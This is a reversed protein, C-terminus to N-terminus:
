KMSYQSVGPIKKLEEELGSGTLVGQNLYLAGLKKNGLFFLIEVKQSGSHFRFLNKMKLIHSLRVITVDLKLSLLESKKNISKIGKKQHNTLHNQQLKAYDFAKDCEEIMVDNVKTLDDLWRCSLRISEERRDIQLIAYILQNVKLLDGKEEYLQSWVPLEYTEVGDSIQLIAFKKQSRQSVRIQVTELIFAARILQNHEIQNLDALPTCSLRELIHEFADMPHGTLFFGLLEKEKKLVEMKPTPHTIEPPNTFRHSIEETMLSFFTLVGSDAEKQDTSAVEHMEEIKMRLEDRLWGTFDFAGADVLCEIAKKSVRKLDIRKFFDYFNAFPGNRDREELIVEVVGEGVGKIGSMAFRIGKETMVFAKGSENIDPSLIDINMSRLERIFKAVKSIDDRDCTMLAAMWIGPYNAKLYATIYTLFGYAAAHSKNFGYSAFKEIKDFIAAAVEEHLGNKIAGQRFKEREQEMQERDKKGMARRLVDGEGLSYNALKQAIQMVQEQYVMIGYTEELIPKLLPHDYEIKERGHKRHIFSPIMDMPGPRYLSGIAIIEEFKDPLLQRALEQMGGSEMQFVGLTKGQQLLHFTKEDDLPLNQWDLKKGTNMAVADCAIQISTLTKLGLFDIKLMGVAEVPKMSFQTTIMDSEKPRCIPINETLPSGSIILGAAHIGTNRISGELKKGLDIIKKADSDELYMQYLDPDIELAKELTMNLDDPIYKAIQNVKSLPVSLVRGVDKITMKAKMTGFTVIQAVNERGYKAVTYDIVQARRDMCIDVDIDPYFLREPNIFREFFLHFRLPEIDTIEILYLIISGVGSGRGPGVPIGEKKAWNIFDWVILLYDSMGKAYIIEMELKLREHVVDMPDKEPYKEAVKQLREPPYRKKIGEECLHRLFTEKTYGPKCSFVPYHKTSFDLELQCKEAIKLTNSIAEPLDFFLAVMEEQSKFYFEHSSYVRRKPNPVRFTPNNFSDKEWIEVPEGSQINILIEHAQWDDAELYHTDNTAVLPIGLKKSAAVMMANVKQQNQIFNRYQQELWAESSIAVIKEEVMQHRQLELYYDEGFIKQYWLIEQYFAEETGYLALDAVQGALSSSLCILGEAYEQLLEKDIRPHYYFGELYGKSSLHCLNRYGQTNKALLVLHFATKGSIKKKEFRSTPAVYVECGVIPKVDYKKCTQYFDIVGHMNGHDTLATAQMGMEAAKQAIGEVSSSAELISYQSHQHLSFWM